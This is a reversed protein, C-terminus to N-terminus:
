SIYHTIQKQKPDAEYEFAIVGVLLYSNDKIKLTIPIDRLKTSLIKNAPYNKKAFRTRSFYCEEVDLM